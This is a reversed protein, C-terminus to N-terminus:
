ALLSQKMFQWTEDSNIIRGHGLKDVAKLRIHAHQKAQENALAFNAFKDNKDHIIHVPHAHQKIHIEPLIQEFQMQHEQEVSSLVGKFLRKNIGTNLIRQEFSDYFGFTPAILLHPLQKSVNLAAVTGMSHSVIAKPSKISNVVSQLGKIFLPLNAFKGESEGHGYHDFATAKFGAQAVKEMLPLFQRGSGSWGHTFIIEPGQGISILNLNGYDTKLKHEVFPSKLKAQKRRKAPTLLLKSAQKLAFNPAIKLASTSAAKILYYAFPKKNASSSFYIKSSM